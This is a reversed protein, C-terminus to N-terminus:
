SQVEKHAELWDQNIREGSIYNQIKLYIEDTM